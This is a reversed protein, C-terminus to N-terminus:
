HNLISMMGPAEAPRVVPAAMEAGTPKNEAYEYIGPECASIQHSAEIDVLDRRM